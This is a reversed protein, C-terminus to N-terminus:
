SYGKPPRKLAQPRSITKGIPERGILALTSPAVQWCFSVPESPLKTICVSSCGQHSVERKHEPADPCETSSSLHPTHQEPMLPLPEAPSAQVTSTASLWLLSFACFLAILLRRQEKLM